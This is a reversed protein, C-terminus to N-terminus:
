LCYSLFSTVAVTVAGKVKLGCKRLHQPVLLWKGAWTRLQNTSITLHLSHADPLAEAQMCEVRTSNCLCEWNSVFSICWPRPAM